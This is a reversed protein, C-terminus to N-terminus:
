HLTGDPEPIRAKVGTCVSPFSVERDDDLDEAARYCGDLWETSVLLVKKSLLRTELAAVGESGGAQESVAALLARPSVLKQLFVSTPSHLSPSQPHAIVVLHTVTRDMRDKVLAGHVRAELIIRRKEIALLARSANSVAHQAHQAERLLLSCGSPCTV